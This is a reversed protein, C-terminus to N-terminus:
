ERTFEVLVNNRKWLTQDIVTLDAVYRGPTLKQNAFQNLDMGTAEDKVSPVTLAAVRNLENLQGKSLAVRAGARFMFAERTTKNWFDVQLILHAVANDGTIEWDLSKYPVLLIFTLASKGNTGQTKFANFYPVPLFASNPSVRFERGAPLEKLVGMVSPGIRREIESAPKPPRLVQRPSGGLPSFEFIARRFMYEPDSAELERELLIFEQPTSIHRQALEMIREEYYFSVSEFLRLGGSGWKQYFLFRYLEQGYEDNYIWLMLDALHDKGTIKARIQPKGRFPYLRIYVKAADGKRGGNDVFRFGPISYLGSDLFFVENKVDAIAQDVLVKFENEPTTRNPDKENWFNTKFKELEELTTTTKIAQEEAETLWEEYEYLFDKRAQELPSLPKSNGPTKAACSWGALLTLILFVSWLNRRM